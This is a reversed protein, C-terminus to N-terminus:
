VRPMVHKTVLRGRWNKAEPLFTVRDGHHLDHDDGNYRYMVGEEFDEVEVRIGHRGQIYHVIGYLWKSVISM